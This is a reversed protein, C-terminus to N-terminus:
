GTFGFFLLKVRESGLDVFENDLEDPWFVKRSHLVRRGGGTCRAM